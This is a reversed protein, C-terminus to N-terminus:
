GDLLMCSNRLLLSILYKETALDTVQDSQGFASLGLFCAALSAATLAECLMEPSVCSKHHGHFVSRKNKGSKSDRFVPSSHIFIHVETVDQNNFNVEATYLPSM